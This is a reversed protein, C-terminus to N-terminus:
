ADGFRTDCRTYAGWADVIKAHGAWPASNETHLTGTRELAMVRALAPGALFQPDLLFQTVATPTVSVCAGSAGDRPSTRIRMGDPERADRSRKGRHRRSRRRRAARPSM